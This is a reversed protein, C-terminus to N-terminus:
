YRNLWEVWSLSSLYTGSCDFSAKSSDPGCCKSLSNMPLHKGLSSLPSLYVELERAYTPMVQPECVQFSM